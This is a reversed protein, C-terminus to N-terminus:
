PIPPPPAFVKLAARNVQYHLPPQMRCIEGDRSVRVLQKSLRIILEPGCRMDFDRSQDLRNLLSLWLLHLLGSVGNRRSTYVCLTGDSLSSRYNVSLLRVSYVNNGVFVFPGSRYRAVGDMEIIANIVPHQAFTHLTAVVGAVHKRLGFRARLADRQEVAFPYAGISSNNLFTRGNVLGVDVRRTHGAAICAISGPLDGPIGLDRCFHNRTGLPLAGLTVRHRLCVEAITSVTGDGGGAILAGFDDRILNSAAAALHDSDCILISANLSHEAFASRVRALLSEDRGAETHQNIVVGFKM